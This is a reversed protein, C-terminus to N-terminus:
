ADALGGERASGSGAPVRLTHGDEAESLHLQPRALLKAVLDLDDDLRECEPALAVQRHGVRDWRLQRDVPSRGARDELEAKVNAQVPRTKAAELISDEVYRDPRALVLRRLRVIVLQAAGVDGVLLEVERRPGSVRDHELQRLLDEAAGVARAEARDAALVQVV